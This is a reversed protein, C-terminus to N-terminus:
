WLGLVWIKVGQSEHEQLIELERNSIIFPHLYQQGAVLAVRGMYGVADMLPPSTTTQAFDLKVVPDEQIPEKLGQDWGYCLVDCRFM